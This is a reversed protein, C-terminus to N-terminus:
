FEFELGASFTRPTPFLRALNSQAEPDFGRWRTINFLNEGQVFFRATKFYTNELYKKPVSYGVQAFRLRVFDASRLFRDSSAGLAFNPADLRPVDTFRNDPTWFNLIDSSLNFTGLNNPNLLGALENDFRDVGFVYNWQTTLFFGKYDANINFSGTVDPLINSGLWVRDTDLNPNETLEGDATLFLLNGNAPNVGQYRVTFNEFLKGGVRGIGIIEDEGNLSVIETENYNGVLQVGLNLGGEKKARFIDYDIVFDVGTNKLEGGNANINTFSNLASINQNLFLDTTRREYADISGRLRNQWVGFDIGVNATAVTEWRLDGNGIQNFFLANSGLFGSANTFTSQTLTLGAFPGGGTVDQNGNTGYSVRLKLLNFASGDLFSEKDLNWRGAVSWFTGWRNSDSFRSSADRRITADLGYKKKYDYSGRSFYSFLGSELVNARAFDVFLDNNGNDDVFATGDASGLVFTPEFLGEQRFGFTQFHSKSYETFLGFGFTHDGVDKNFNASLIQNYLFSRLLDQDVSGPFPNPNGNEDNGGFFIANFSTPGETRNRIDNTYDGSFLANLSIDDTLNYGLDLSGILRLEDQTRSFTSLRDLLLIPAQNLAAPISGGEGPVFDSELLYPLGSIGGLVFNRNVAGGGIANPTDNESYNTSLNLRYNFKDNSSKGNLNARFNFRTLNSQVLIGEEETFGLSIFSSTNESGQSINLTHNQTFSNRFFVNLWDTGEAQSIEDLTLGGGRGVGQENEFRLYTQADLLGYDSSQLSSTSTNNLYTIKLKSNFKGSKTRILIVGNAGRNGYIATAAADKLVEISEIENPNLSRFNDQDVPAGDIIFLPETDGNISSVGRLRVLSNGGPQGSQTNINLGAVQGSLTQVISSNPRGEVTEATITTRSSIGLEKPARVNGIVVVEELANDRELSINITNTSGVTVEQTKFGVYSFVLVDTSSANISYNGDFDSQVGRSTGKLTVNAGPLPGNEESVTGSVTKQQAFSIQVMSVVLLTMLFCLKNKM